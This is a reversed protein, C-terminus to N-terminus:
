PAAVRQASGSRGAPLARAGLRADLPALRYDRGNVLAYDGTRPDMPLRSEVPYWRNHRDILDNVEDFRLAQARTSGSAGSGSRTAACEDRSRTGPRSAAGGRAGRDAARDRAPPAHVPAPRADRRPLGRCTPRFLRARVPLPKGSLPITACIRRSRPSSAASARRRRCCSARACSRTASPRRWSRIVGTAPLDPRSSGRSGPGARSEAESASARSAAREAAGARRRARARADAGARRSARRTARLRRSHRRAHRRPPEGRARGPGERSAARTRGASAPRPSRPRGSSPTAAASCATRGCRHPASTASGRPELM